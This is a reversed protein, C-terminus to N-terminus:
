ASKGQKCKFKNETFCCPCFFTSPLLIIIPIPLLDLLSHHLPFLPWPYYFIGKVHLIEVKFTPLLVGKFHTFLVIRVQGSRVILMRDGRFRVYLCLSPLMHSQKCLHIFLDTLLFHFILILSFFLYYLDPRHAASSHFLNIVCCLIPSYYM